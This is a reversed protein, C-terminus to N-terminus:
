YRDGNSRAKFWESHHVTAQVRGLWQEVERLTEFSRGQNIVRLYEGVQCSSRVTGDPGPVGDIYRQLIERREAIHKSLVESTEDFTPRCTALIARCPDLIFATNDALINESPDRLFHSYIEFRLEVPLNLFISRQNNAM